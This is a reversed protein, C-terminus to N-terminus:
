YSWAVSVGAYHSANRYRGPPTGSDAVRTNGFGAMYFVDVVLGRDVRYGCGASLHHLNSDPVAATLTHGPVPSPVYAYGARWTLRDAARHELGAKLTWVNRWELPTRRDVVGAAPVENRLDVMFSDFSSWRVQEADFSLTTQASPRHALGLSLIGPFRLRSTAATAFQAGGFLPQLAPAIGTLRMDGEFRIRIPSRYAFGASWPGGAGALLGFNWGWGGGQQRLVMQRDAGGVPSQDVAAVAESRALMYDAGVGFHWSDGLRRALVPNVVFTGIMSDTSAYRTAGQERWRRGGVGFPAFAAVGLRWEGNGAASVLYAHPVAFAQFRTTESQGAGQFESVPVVLAGGAYVQAQRSLTALGASNYAFASPDDAVAVFATGMAAARAGHVPGGATAAMPLALLSLTLVHSLSGM